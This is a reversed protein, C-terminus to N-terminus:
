RPSIVVRWFLNNAGAGTNRHQLILRTGRRVRGIAHFDDPILPPRAQRSLTSEQQVTGTGHYITVRSEGAAEATLYYRAVGDIPSFELQSGSLVNTTVAGAGTSTVGQLQIM